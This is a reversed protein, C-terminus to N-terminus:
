PKRSGRRDADIGLLYSEFDKYHQNNRVYRGTAMLESITERYGTPVFARAAAYGSKGRMSQAISGTQRAVFSVPRDGPECYALAYEWYASRNRESELMKMILEIGIKEEMTQLYVGPFGNLAEIYLGVDEVIVPRRFTMAAWSASFEAVDRNSNAQIEPTDIAMNDLLIKNTDIARCFQDFKYRNRTIFTLRNM